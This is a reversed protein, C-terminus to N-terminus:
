LRQGVAEFEQLAMAVQQRAEDIKNMADALQAHAQDAEAQNSGETAQRLGNQADELSSHAQALEAVGQEASRHATMIAERAGEINMGAGSPTTTSKEAPKPGSSKSDAPKPDALLDVTQGTAPNVWEQDRENWVPIPERYERGWGRCTPCAGHADAGPPGGTGGCAGCIPATPDTDIWSSLGATREEYIRDAVAVAQAHATLLRDLEADADEVIADDPDFEKALARARQDAADVAASLRAVEADAAEQRRWLDERGAPIHRATM